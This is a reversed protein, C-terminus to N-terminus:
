QKISSADECFKRAWEELGGAVAPLTTEKIEGRFGSEGPGIIKVYNMRNETDPVILSGLSDTSYYALTLISSSMLVRM